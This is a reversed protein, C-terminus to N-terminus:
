RPCDLRKDRKNKTYETARLVFALYGGGNQIKNKLFLNSLNHVGLLLPGAKLAGGIWFQGQVNVQVPLYAGLRRTEWRPTITVFNNDKVFLRKDGALQTLPISIEANVYFDNVILPRDVNVVLRMPNIVKYKGALRTFEDTVTQLSDNFEKLNNIGNFKVDINVGNINGKEVGAYRSERGFTFQNFGVDLLSVGLKWDYDYYDDGDYINTIAQTKIILELGGDVAIGGEAYKFIKNLNSFLNGGDQWKDLTAAYGLLANTANLSFSPTSSINNNRQVGASFAKINASALGKMAKVTFGGNLRYISNDAITQAYSAFLEAWAVSVARARANSSQQNVLFFEDSSSITDVHTIGTVTAYTYEKVNVGFAISRQKGINFRTNLLHLNTNNYFYRKFSGENISFQSPGKPSLLSFNYVKYANSSGKYQASLINVDWKYPTFVISAPNNDVGMVGAYSSGNIAHYNQGSVATYTICYGAVLLIRVFGKGMM